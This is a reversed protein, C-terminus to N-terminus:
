LNFKVDVLACEAVMEVNEQVFVCHACLCVSCFGLRILGLDEYM